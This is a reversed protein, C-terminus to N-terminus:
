KSKFNFNCSSLIMNKFKKCNESGNEIFTRLNSGGLLELKEKPGTKEGTM